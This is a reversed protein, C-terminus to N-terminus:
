FAMTLSSQVQTEPNFAPKMVKLTYVEFKGEQRSELSGKARLRRCVRSIESGFMTEKYIKGSMKAPTIEGYQELYDLILQAQTM